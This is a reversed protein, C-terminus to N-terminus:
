KVVTTMGRVTQKNATRKWGAGNIDDASHIHIEAEPHQNSDNMISAWMTENTPVDAYLTTTAERLDHIILKNDKGISMLSYSSPEHMFVKVVNTVIIERGSDNTSIGSKMTHEVAVVENEQLPRENCATVIVILAVVSLGVSVLKSINKM